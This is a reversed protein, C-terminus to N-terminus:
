KVEIQRPKVAELKSITIDLVGDKYQATVKDNDIGDFRLRRAFSGYSREVHYMKEDEKVEERKKEGTVSLVNDELEVKIDDKAIGAVELHVKYETETESVDMPPSWPTSGWLSKPAVSEGFFSGFGFPDYDHLPKVRRDHKTLTM